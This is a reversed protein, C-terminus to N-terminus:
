AFRTRVEKGGRGGLPAQGRVDHRSRNGITEPGLDLRLSRGGPRRPAAGAYRTEDRVPLATEPESIAESSKDRPAAQASLAPRRGAGRSLDESAARGLARGSGPGATSLGPVWP